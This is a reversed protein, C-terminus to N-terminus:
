TASRPVIAVAVPGGQEPQDVLSRGDLAMAVSPGGDMNLAWRAGLRLLTRQWERLTLGPRGVAVLWLEDGALAVAARPARTYIQFRTTGGLRLSRAARGDAILIPKGSVIDDFGTLDRGIAARGAGLGLNPERGDGAALQHGGIVLRGSSGGDQRYFDGNIAALADLRSVGAGGTAVAAVRYRLDNLGVAIRVLSAAGVPTDVTAQTLRIGSLDRGSGGRQAVIVATAAVATLLAAVSAIRLWV